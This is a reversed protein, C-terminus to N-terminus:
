AAPTPPLLRDITRSGCRAPRARHDPRLNERMRGWSEFDTLAELAILTYRRMPEALTSLEPRYMLELRRLILERMLRVRSRSSPRIARTPTSRAGCRCGRRAPRPGRRSRRASARRGTATSIACSPAARHGPRLCPRHRRHAAVAPRPLARLGLAGFLGGTRRDAGLDAGAPQRAAAGSLGRHHAPAHARQAPPPWRRRSGLPRCAM